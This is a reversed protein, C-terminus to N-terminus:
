RPVTLTAVQTELVYWPEAGARQDVELRDRADIRRQPLVLVDSRGLSNAFALASEQSGFITMLRAWGAAVGDAREGPGGVYGLPQVRVFHQVVPNSSTPGVADPEAKRLPRRKAGRGDLWRRFREMTWVACSGLMQPGHEDYHALYAARAQAESDFGLMVKHEDFTRKNNIRRQNIIFVLESQRNPGVYVDVEEDDAGTTGILYGYPYVMVTEGERGADADYWRRKSGKPNEIAIRLGQMELYGGLPYAEVAYSKALDELLWEREMDAFEIDDATGYEKAWAHFADFAENIAKKGKEGGLQRAEDLARSWDRKPNPLEIGHQQALHELRERDRQKTAETAKAAKGTDYFVIRGDHLGAQIDDNMAYGAEHMRELGAAVEAFQEKSLKEPIEVYPKIQFGKDGHAQYRSRLVPAGADAIKNGIEVQSRLMEAAERPTRHGSNFPQYPVTTSVKVVANGVKFALGDDGKGLLKAKGDRVANIAVSNPHKPVDVKGRLDNVFHKFSAKPMSVGAGDKSQRVRVKGAGEPEVHLEFAHLGLAPHPTLQKGSTHEEDRWPITHKADAWKGGRPGIFPGGKRMPGFLSQQAPKSFDFGTQHPKTPQHREPPPTSKRKQPKPLPLGLKKARAANLPHKGGKNCTRCPASSVVDDGGISTQRSIVHAVGKCRPCNSPKVHGHKARSWPIKHEPDAYLGGKPGIYPGGSKVFFRPLDFAKEFEAFPDEEEVDLGETVDAVVADLQADTMRGIRQALAIFSAGKRTLKKASSMKTLQEQMDGPEGLPPQNLEDALSYHLVRLWYLGDRTRSDSLGAQYWAEENKVGGSAVLKMAEITPEASERVYENQKARRMKDVLKSVARQMTSTYAEHAEKAEAKHDDGAITKDYKALIARQKISLTGGRELQSRFSELIGYEREYDDLEDYSATDPDPAPPLLANIKDIMPKNKELAKRKEAALDVRIKPEETRRFITEIPRDLRPDGNADFKPKGIAVVGGSDVVYIRGAYRRRSADKRAFQKLLDSTVATGITGEIGIKRAWAEAVAHNDEGPTLIREQIFRAQKESQWGGGHKEALRKFTKSMDRGGMHAETVHGWPHPVDDLMTLDDSNRAEERAKKAARAEAKRRKEAKLEHLKRAEGVRSRMTRLADALEGHAMARAEDLTTDQYLGLAQAEPLLQRLEDLQEKAPSRREEAGQAPEPHRERVQALLDLLNTPTEAAPKPAPKPAREDKSPQGFLDLQGVSRPKKKPKKPKADPYWYEWRTGHRRRYGGRKGGPIPQWGGGSPRDAKALSEMSRIRAKM